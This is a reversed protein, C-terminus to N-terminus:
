NYFTAVEVTPIFLTSYNQFKYFSTQEDFELGAKLQAFYQPHTFDGTGILGLGKLKAGFALGNLNMDKSVARSYLSHFHFDAYLVM